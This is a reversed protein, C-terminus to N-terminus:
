FSIAAIKYKAAIELKKADARALEVMQAAYFERGSKAGSNNLERLKNCHMLYETSDTYELKAVTTISDDIGLINM